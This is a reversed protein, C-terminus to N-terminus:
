NAQIKLNVFQVVKMEARIKVIRQTQRQMVHFVPKLVSFYRFFSLTASFCVIM